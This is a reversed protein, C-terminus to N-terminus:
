AEQAVVAVKVTTNVDAHLRVNFEYEGTQRLTGEPMLIESREVQVGATKFADVLDRPGISGFLKGGYGVKVQIQLTDLAAIKEARQQALTLSQAQKAELEARIKKFKELNDQSAFIAKGKPILYNRGYGNKVEVIDGFEGLKAIKELLIVKMKKEEILAAQM